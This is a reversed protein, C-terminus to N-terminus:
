KGNAPALTLVLKEMEALRERLATLESQNRERLAALESQQEEVKQHLEQVAAAAYITLPYTDVQLIASGDPLFEGSPRVHDPFVQAFEQAIVNLYRQDVISPHRSRYDDTYRFSVLRVSQLRELAGSVPLIEDKIRRDSNSLWSGAISKSVQGEVELQNVEPVRGIGIKGTFVNDEDLRGVRVPVRPARLSISHHAGASIGIVNALRDPVDTQELSDDGWGVVTGDSRLALSHSYGGAVAIVGTLDGPVTAQEGLDWGWAVVAGNARVALSHFAGAAIAVVDSLGGPVDIQEASNRGWAVVTGNSKLALSHDDGAAIAIVNTVTGPMDLQLFSNDGFAVVSGDDKLALSHSQGAAVAKVGSLTGPVTSQLSGVSGWAVVTGDSKLALSHAGGAAVQIVDTLDAPVTAQEATDDGWARVTGDSKVALSHSSGAAVQIVAGLDGPVTSQGEDNVGWGIVPQAPAGYLGSLAMSGSTVAYGAAGIRRDPSLLQFGNSGDNFWVRLRVDENAFVGTPLARMNALSSDGLLVAYLGNAVSLSVPAVPIDAPILEGALSLDNSWYATDGTGNVLAFKFQGVGDFPTADVSVRGQYNLLQPVEARLGSAMAM